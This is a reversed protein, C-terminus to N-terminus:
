NGGNDDIGDIIFVSSREHFQAVDAVEIGDGFGQIECAGGFAQVDGLRRQRVLDALEFFLETDLQEVAAAFFDAHGFSAFDQAAM